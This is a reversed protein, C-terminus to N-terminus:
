TFTESRSLTKEQYRSNETWGEVILWRRHLLPNAGRALGLEVELGALKVLLEFDHTWCDMLNKLYRVNGFIAGSEGIYRLLCSKLGCEIVYGAHYYAASWRGMILMAEVDELYRKALAQFWLRDM